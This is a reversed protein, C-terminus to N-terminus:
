EINLLCVSCMYLFPFSFFAFYRVMIWNFPENQTTFSFSSLISKNNVFPWKISLQADTGNNLRQKLHISSSHGVLIRYVCLCFYIGSFFSVSCWIWILDGSLPRKFISLQDITKRSQKTIKLLMWLTTSEFPIWEAFFWWCSDYPIFRVRMVCDDKISVWYLM